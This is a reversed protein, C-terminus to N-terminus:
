MYQLFDLASKLLSIFDTCGQENKRFIINFVDVQALLKSKIQINEYERRLNYCFELISPRNTTQM